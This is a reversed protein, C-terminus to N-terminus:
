VCPFTKSEKVFQLLEELGIASSCEAARRFGGGYVHTTDTEIVFKYYEILRQEWSKMRTSIEAHMSDLYRWSVYQCLGEEVEPPLVPFVEASLKCYVHMAEHALISATLLRPLGCLVLVATVSRRTVTAPEVFRYIQQRDAAPFMRAIGDAYGSSGIHRIQTETTSLTMGRVITSDEKHVGRPSRNETVNVENLSSLDVALVPVRRGEPPIRLNLRREMFEIVEAYIESAESSDFICTAVCDNCLSRGDPFSVFAERNTEKQQCSFCSRSTNEHFTCYGPKEIFFAHRNFTQGSLSADCVGCRPAFLTEACKPHFFEVPVGRPIYPGQIPEQCGYCRFCHPHLPRGDVRIFSGSLPQSCEGCYIRGGDLGESLSDLFRRM